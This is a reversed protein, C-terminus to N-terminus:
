DNRSERFSKRDPRRASKFAYLQGGKDVPKSKEGSAICRKDGCHRPPLFDANTQPFFITERFQKGDPGEPLNLVMRKIEAKPHRFNVLLGVQTGTAKLYNLLQAEHIKELREVSKIEVIVQDEVIIDAIYEGVIEEKYFVKIPMQIEAKLGRTKLEILL